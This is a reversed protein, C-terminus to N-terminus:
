TRRDRGARGDQSGSGWRGGDNVRDNVNANVNANVNVSENVDEGIRELHDLLAVIGTARTVRQGDLRIGDVVVGLVGGGPALLPAGSSGQEGDPAPFIYLVEEYGDRQRVSREYSEVRLVFTTHEPEGDSVAPKLGVCLLDGDAPAREAPLFPALRHDDALLELVALDVQPHSLLVRGPLSLGQRFLLRIPEAPPQGAVVHKATVIWGPRLFAFGTGTGRRSKVVCLALEDLSGM